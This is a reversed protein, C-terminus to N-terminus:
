IIAPILTDEYSRRGLFCMYQKASSSIGIDCILVSDTAGDLEDELLAKIKLLATRRVRLLFVSYQLREGHSQLIKAIHLRRVDDNIDYAILYSRQEDAM